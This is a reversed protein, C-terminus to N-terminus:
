RQATRPALKVDIRWDANSRLHASFGTVAAGETMAGPRWADHGEIESFWGKDIATKVMRSAADAADTKDEFAMDWALRGPVRSQAEWTQAAVLLTAGRRSELGPSLRLSQPRDECLTVSANLGRGLRLGVSTVNEVFLCTPGRAPATSGTWNVRAGAQELRRSVLGALDIASTREGLVVAISVTVAPETTPNQFTVDAEIRAGGTTDVEGEFIIQVLGQARASLSGAAVFLLALLIRM